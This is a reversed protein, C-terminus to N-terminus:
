VRLFPFITEYGPQRASNFQYFQTSGFPPARSLPSMQMCVVILEIFIENLNQRHYLMEFSTMSCSCCPKLLEVGLAPLSLNCFDAFLKSLANCNIDMLWILVWLIPWTMKLLSAGRYSVRDTQIYNQRSVMLKWYMVFTWLIWVSENCKWKWWMNVVNDCCTWLM